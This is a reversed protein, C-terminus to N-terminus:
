VHARGIEDKESIVPSNPGDIAESSCSALMAAALLPFYFKSVKM